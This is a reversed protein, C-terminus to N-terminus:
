SSRLLEPENAVLQSAVAQDAAELIDGLASRDRRPYLRFAENYRPDPELILTPIGGQTLM